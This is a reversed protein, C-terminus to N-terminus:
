AVALAAPGLSDNPASMPCLWCYHVSRPCFLFRQWECLFGLDPPHRCPMSRKPKRDGAAQRVCSTARWRQLTLQGRRCLPASSLVRKSRGCLPHVTAPAELRRVPLVCPVIPTGSSGPLRGIAIQRRIGISRESGLQSALECRPGTTTLAGSSADARWVASAAKPTLDRKAGPFPM